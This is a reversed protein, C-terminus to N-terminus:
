ETAMKANADWADVLPGDVVADELDHGVVAVRV